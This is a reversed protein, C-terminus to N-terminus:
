ASEILEDTKHSLWEGLNRYVGFALHQLENYSARQFHATHTNSKVDRVLGRTLEEAHDEIMTVLRASLM